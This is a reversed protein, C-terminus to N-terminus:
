ALILVDVGKYIYIKFFLFYAFSDFGIKKLYHKGKKRKKKKHISM